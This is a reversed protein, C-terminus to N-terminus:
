GVPLFELLWFATCLAKTLGWALSTELPWSLNPPGAVVAIWESGEKGM